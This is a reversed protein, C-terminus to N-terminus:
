LRKNVSIGDENELEDSSVVLISKVNKTNNLLNKAFVINDQSALIYVNM